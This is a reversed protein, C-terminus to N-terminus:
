CQRSSSPRTSPPTFRRTRHFSSISSWSRGTRPPSSNRGPLATDTLPAAFLGITVAIVLWRARMCFVLVARFLRMFRGPEGHGGGHAKMAKPLITVGFVPAFLVAVIWSALLAGAIVAFLSYRYEGAGSKAFGIPVFGAVIVLTGTLMPFATTVWAYTASHERYGLNESAQIQKAQASDFQAQATKFTKLAQDYQVRTTNGNKLLERQRYEQAQSRTAEAEAAAVEAKAVEFDQHYQQPDLRALLDSKKVQTGVDVQRERIKGNVQFRIDAQYRPQIEGNLSVKEGRRAVRGDRHARAPRGAVCGERRQPLGGFGVAFRSYWGGGACPDCAFQASGPLVQQV